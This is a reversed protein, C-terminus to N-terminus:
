LAAPGLGPRGLRRKTCFASFGINHAWRELSLMNAIRFVEGFISRLVLKLAVPPHLLLWEENLCLHATHVDDDKQGVDLVVPNFNNVDQFLKSRTSFVSAARRSRRPSPGAPGSSWSDLPLLASVVGSAPSAGYLSVSDEAAGIM